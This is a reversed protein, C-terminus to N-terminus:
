VDSIERNQRSSEYFGVQSRLVSNSNKFKVVRFCSSDVMATGENKRLRRALRRCRSLGVLDRRPFRGGRALFVADILLGVRIVDILELALRGRSNLDSLNSDKLQSPRDGWALSSIKTFIFVSLM